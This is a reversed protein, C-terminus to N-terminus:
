WGRALALWVLGMAALWSLALLAAAAALQWHGKLWALRRAITAQRGAMAPTARQAPGLELRAGTPTMLWNDAVVYGSIWEGDCGIASEAGIACGMIVQYTTAKEGDIVLTLEEM